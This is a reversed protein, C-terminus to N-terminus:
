IHTDFTKLLADLVAYEQQCQPKLYWGRDFRIREIDDYIDGVSLKSIRGGNIGNHSPVNYVKVEFVYVYSCNQGVSPLIEIHGKIWGYEDITDYYVKVPIQINYVKGFNTMVGPINVM